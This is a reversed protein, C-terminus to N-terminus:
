VQSMRHKGKSCIIQNFLINGGLIKETETYISHALKLIDPM